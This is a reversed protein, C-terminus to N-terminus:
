CVSARGFAVGGPIRRSGVGSSTASSIRNGTSPHARHSSPAAASERCAGTPSLSPFWMEAIEDLVFARFIRAVHGRNRERFSFILSTRSVRVSRSRWPARVANQNPRHSCGCARPLPDAIERSARACGGSQPSLAGCSADGSSIRCSSPKEFSGIELSDGLRRARRRVTDTGSSVTDNRFFWWPRTYCSRPTAMRRTIPRYVTLTDMGTPTAPMRIGCYGYGIPFGIGYWCARPKRNRLPRSLFAGAVAAILLLKKWNM